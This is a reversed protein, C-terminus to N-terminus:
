SGTSRSPYSSGTETTSSNPGCRITVTLAYDIMAAIQDERGRYSDVAIDERWLIALTAVAPGLHSVGALEKFGRTSMRFGLVAPPMGAGPYLALGTSTAVLLPAGATTESYTEALRQGISDPTAPYATFLDILEPSEFRLTSM